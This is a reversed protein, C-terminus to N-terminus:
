SVFYNYRHFFCVTTSFHFFPLNMITNYNTRCHLSTTTIPTFDFKIVISHYKNILLALWYSCSYKSWNWM